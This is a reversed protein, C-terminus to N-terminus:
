YFTKSDIEITFKTAKVIPKKAKTGDQSQLRVIGYSALKNLTRSLNSEKRGSLQALESISGPQNQEILKLLALNKESLAESLSRMSAFWVKPETPKPKYQGKAIAITRQKYQEPPMVGLKLVKEM